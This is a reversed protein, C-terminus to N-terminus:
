SNKLIAIYNHIGTEVNLMPLQVIGDQYAKHMEAKTFYQYKVKIDEPMDFYEIDPEINMAKFLSLALYNFTEAKGTGANYIGSPINNDLFALTMNVVDQVYVFDRKQEGDKYDKRHSKFLRIKSNKKIQNYGHWAVSAMKGKHEEFPGYVNFYKLGIWKPPTIEQDLAWLDFFHKSVGYGNIPKLKWMNDHDDSFGQSGDGYTAASSAYVFPTEREICFNWLKQSYRVNNKYLYDFDKETTDSCAGLHIVGDVSIQKNRELWNWFDNKNVYDIFKRGVLHKWKETSGINDVVLVDEIGRNNLEILTNTGIFGAGGTLIIM